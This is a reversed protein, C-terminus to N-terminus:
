NMFIEAGSPVFSEAMVMIGVPKSEGPFIGDQDVNVATRLDLIDLVNPAATSNQPELHHGLLTEDNEAKIVAPGEVAAMGKFRRDIVLKAFNLKFILQRADVIQFRQCIDISAYQFKPNSSRRM